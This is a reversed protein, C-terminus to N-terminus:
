FKEATSYKIMPTPYGANDPEVPVTPTPTIVQNRPKPDYYMANTCSGAYYVYNECDWNTGVTYVCSPGINAEM